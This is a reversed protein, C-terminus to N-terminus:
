LEPLLNEWEHEMLEQAENRKNIFVMFKPPWAKGNLPLIHELDLTCKTFYKMEEVLFYINLRDNSHCITATREPHMQLKSKVDDLVLDPMTASVVHFLVHSPVLWHLLGLQGYEPWGNVSGTITNWPYVMPWLWVWLCQLWVPYPYLGMCFM